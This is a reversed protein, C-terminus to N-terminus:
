LSWDKYYSLELYQMVVVAIFAILALIALVMFLVSGGRAAPGAVTAKKIANAQKM